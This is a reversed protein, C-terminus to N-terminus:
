AKRRQREMHVGLALGAGLAIQATRIILGEALNFLAENRPSEKYVAEQRDIIAELLASAPDDEPAGRLFHLGANLMREIM